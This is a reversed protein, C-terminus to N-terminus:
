ACRGDEICISRTAYQNVRPDHTAILFTSRYRTNIERVLELLRLANTLDLSATPEDALVIAPEAALARAVAVRQQEGGSLSAARQRGQDALGVRALWERVREARQRPPVRLRLMSLEVNEAATLVPVLNARQFVFGVCESRFKELARAPLKHLARGAVSVEGADVQTLGGVISLVTSKGSGSAGVLTVVEGPAVDFSVDKLAAVSQSGSLFRKSVHRLAVACDNPIDLM